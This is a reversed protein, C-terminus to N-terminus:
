IKSILYFEPYGEECYNYVNYNSNPDNDLNRYTTYTFRGKTDTSDPQFMSYPDNDSLRFDHMDYADTMNELKEFFKGAYSYVMMILAEVARNSIVMKLLEFSTRPCEVGDMEEAYICLDIEKELSFNLVDTNDVHIDKLLKEEFEEFDRLTLDKNHMISNLASKVIEKVANKIDYDEELNHMWDHATNNEKLLDTFKRM